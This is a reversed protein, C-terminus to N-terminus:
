ELDKLWEVSDEYPPIKIEIDKTKPLINITIVLKYYQCQVVFGVHSDYPLYCLDEAFLMSFLTTINLPNRSFVM